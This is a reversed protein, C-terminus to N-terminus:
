RTGPPARRAKAPSSVTRKRTLLEHRGEAQSYKPNKIKLWGTGDDRYVSLKRKAVIGELDRRWIEDFLEKGRGDVHQAYLIRRIGSSEILRQLRRKRVILPLKRLDEGDLWLLDFAYFIPEVKRELLANFRSVGKSDLCIVEGDLVASKVPLGSLAKKLSEFKLNKLNRSVLWSQGDEVYAVARFGDHKLEFVYEPDDFPQPIRRVRM